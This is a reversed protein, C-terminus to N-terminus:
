ISTSPRNGEFTKHPTLHKITEESLNQKKLELSAEKNTKGMM